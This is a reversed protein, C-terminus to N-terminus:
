KKKLILLKELIPNKNNELITELYKLEKDFDMNNEYKIKILEVVEEISQNVLEPNNNHQNESELTATTEENNENADVNDINDTATDIEEENQEMRPSQERSRAEELALEAKVSAEKIYGELLSVDNNNNHQNETELAVDQNADQNSQQDDQKVISTHEM